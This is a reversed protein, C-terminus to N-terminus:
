WVCVQSCMWVHHVNLSISVWYATLYLHTNLFLCSVIAARLLRETVSLRQSSLSPCCPTSSVTTRIQWDSQFSCRVTWPTTKIPSPPCKIIATRSNLLLFPYNLEDKTDMMYTAHTSTHAPGLQVVAQCVKRKGRQHQCSNAKEGRPIPLISSSQWVCRLVAMEVLFRIGGLLLCPVISSVFHQDWLFLACFFGLVVKSDFQRLARSEFWSFSIHAHKPNEFVREHSCTLWQKHAEATVKRYLTASLFSHGHGRVGGAEGEESQVKIFQQMALCIFFFSTVECCGLSFGHVLLNIVARINLSFSQINLVNWFLM